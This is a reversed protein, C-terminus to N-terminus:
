GVKLQSVLKVAQVAEKVDHVRLISAGNLLGITNLVTTGNLADGASIGLTKYITAKRSIGALLPKELQKFWSLQALLQFNHQSTKGFGFGPDVIVDKIGALLLENIKTNLADFVDLVVNNYAPAKQMTQPDGQMHMLVYPVKLAAVTTILNEDISGASVDNVICAGAHVAYEAVKAYFTDVSIVADPFKKIIAEIAPIVRKLEEEISIRESGPRTSQGGVDLFAAGDALMKEATHLVADEAKHRSEKYFSDPTINIIGMILPENFCILRGKCNISLM